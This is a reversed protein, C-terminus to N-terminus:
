ERALSVFKGFRKFPLKSLQQFRIGLVCRYFFKLFFKKSGHSFCHFPPIYSTKQPETWHM